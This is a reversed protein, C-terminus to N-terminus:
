GISLAQKQSQEPITSLPGDLIIPHELPWSFVKVVTRDNQGAQLHWKYFSEHTQYLPFTEMESLHRVRQVPFVLDKKGRTLLSLEFQFRCKCDYGQKSHREQYGEM